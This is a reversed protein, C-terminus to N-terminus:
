VRPSRSTVVLGASVFAANSSPPRADAFPEVAVLCGVDLAEDARVVRVRRRVVEEAAVVEVDVASRHGVPPKGAEAAQALQLHVDVVRVDLLM